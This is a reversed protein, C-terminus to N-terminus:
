REPAADLRVAIGALEKSVAPYYRMVLPDHGPVIHDPSDALRYLLNFGELMEAISYVIPFPRRQEFNAYLHAADSAIVVWGRKTWVRVIQLGASHGGVRHLTLGPALEADGDHFIARQAYIHALMTQINELDFPHRLVAQGMSRGTAFAMDRDQLHFKARPLRDLNGAHDYHLHTVIIDTLKGPDLGVLRLSDIPNRLLERRRRDAAPKAFGTDVLYAEDGRRVVWVFYDLDSAFEHPDALIFNEGPHRGGLHAYRLALVEFPEIPM